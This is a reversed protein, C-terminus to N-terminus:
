MFYIKHFIVQEGTHASQQGEWCIELHCQEYCWVKYFSTSGLAVQQYELYKCPAPESGHASSPVASATLQVEVGCVWLVQTKKKAIRM